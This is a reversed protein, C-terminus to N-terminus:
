VQADATSVLSPTWWQTPVSLFSMMTLFEPSWLGTSPTSCGVLHPVLSVAPEPAAGLSEAGQSPPQSFGLLKLGRVTCSTSQFVTQYEGLIM